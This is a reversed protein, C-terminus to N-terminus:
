PRDASINNPMKNGRLYSLADRLIERCGLDSLHEDDSLHQSQWVAFWFSKEELGEPPLADTGKNKTFYDIMDWSFDALTQPSEENNLVESLLNELELKKRLLDM